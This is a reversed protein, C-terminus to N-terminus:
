RGYREGRKDLNAVRTEFEDPPSTRDRSIQVSDEAGDIPRACDHICKGQINIPLGAYERGPAHDKVWQIQHMEEIAGEAGVKPLDWAHANGALCTLIIIFFTLYVPFLLITKM